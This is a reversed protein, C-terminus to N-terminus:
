FVFIIKNKYFIRLIGKDSRIKVRGCSFGDRNFKVEEMVIGEYSIKSSSLKMAKFIDGKLLLKEVPLSKRIEGKIVFNKANKIKLLFSTVGVDYGYSYKVLYSLFKDFKDYGWNGEILIRESFIAGLGPAM